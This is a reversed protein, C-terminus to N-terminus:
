QIVSPDTAATAKPISSDAPILRVPFKNNNNRLKDPM